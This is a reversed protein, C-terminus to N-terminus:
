NRSEILWKGNEKRLSVEYSPNDIGTKNIKVIVFAKLNDFSFIPITMDYFPLHPNKVPIVKKQIDNEITFDKLVENQYKFYLSDSKTFKNGKCMEFSLLNQVNVSDKFRALPLNGQKIPFSIFVKRLDRLFPKSFKTSDIRLVRLSDEYIITSVIKNIDASNPTKYDLNIKKKSCSIISIFLFFILLTREM